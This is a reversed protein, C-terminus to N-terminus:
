GTASGSSQRHEPRILDSSVCTFRSAQRRAAEPQSSHRQHVPYRAVTSARGPPHLRPPQPPAAGKRRLPEPPAGHGGASIHGQQRHLQEPVPRQRTLLRHRVRASAFRASTTITLDDTRDLNDPSPTTMRVAEDCDDALECPECVEDTDFDRM